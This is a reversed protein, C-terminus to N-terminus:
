IEHVLFKMCWFGGPDALDDSDEAISRDYILGWPIHIRSPVCFTITDRQAALKQDAWARAKDGRDQDDDDSGFFLVEYLDYGRAAVIRLLRPYEDRKEDRIATVLEQVAARVANSRGTILEEDIFYKHLDRYDQHWNIELTAADTNRAVYVTYDVM